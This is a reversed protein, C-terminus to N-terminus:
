NKGAEILKAKQGKVFDIYHDLARRIVESRSLDLEKSIRELEKLEYSSLKIGTQKMINEKNILNEITYNNRYSQRRMGCLSRHVNNVSTGIQGAIIYEFRNPRHSEKASVYTLNHCTRCSWVNYYPPKLFLTLKKRECYPCMVMPRKGNYRGEGTNQYTLNIHYNRILDMSQDYKGKLLLTSENEFYCETKYFLKNDKYFELISYYKEIDQNNLVKRLKYRGLEFKLCDEVTFRYYRSRFHEGSGFGGM